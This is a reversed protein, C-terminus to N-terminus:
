RGSLVETLIAHGPTAYDVCLLIALRACSPYGIVVYRVRESVSVGSMSVDSQM